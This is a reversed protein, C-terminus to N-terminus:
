GSLPRSKILYYTYIIFIVVSNYILVYITSSSFEYMFNAIKILVNPENLFLIGSDINFHYFIRHLLPPIWISLGGIGKRLGKNMIESRMEFPYNEETRGRNLYRHPYANPRLYFIRIPYSFYLLALYMELIVIVNHILGLEWPDDAIYNDLWCIIITIHLFVFLWDLEEPRFPAKDGSWNHHAKGKSYHNGFPFFLKLYLQRIM